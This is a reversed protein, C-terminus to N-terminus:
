GALFCLTPIRFDKANKNVDECCEIMSNVISGSTFSGAKKNAHLVADTYHARDRSLWQQTGIPNIPLEDLYNKLILTVMRKFRDVRKEKGFGIFPSGLICGAFNLTPNNVIMTTIVLCGMSHAQVFCPIQDNVEKLM